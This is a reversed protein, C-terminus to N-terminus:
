PNVCLPKSTHRPDQQAVANRPPLIPHASFTCSIHVSPESDVEDGENEVEEEVENEVPDSPEDDDNSCAAAGLAFSM